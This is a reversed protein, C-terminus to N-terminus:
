FHLGLRKGLQEEDVFGRVGCILEEVCEVQESYSDNRRRVVVLVVIMTEFRIERIIPCEMEAWRQKTM